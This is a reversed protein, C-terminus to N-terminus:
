ASRALFAQFYGNTSGSLLTPTGTTFMYIEIYDTSGNLYITYSGGNAQVAAPYSYSLKASLSGNKYIYVELYGSANGNVWANVQYYGAVNPTFRKNTTDYCSATDYHETDYNVKTNTSSSIAQTSGLYASFAPGTGAFTSGTTIVTGSTTPLTLTTTGSAAPAALTISGSTSGNLILNAM